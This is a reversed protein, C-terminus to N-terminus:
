VVARPEGPRPSTERAVFDTQRSLKSILFHLGAYLVCGWIAFTGLGGVLQNDILFMSICIVLMAYLPLWREPLRITAAHVLTAGYGFLAVALPGLAGFDYYLYTIETGFFGGLMGNADPSYSLDNGSLAGVVRWPIFFHMRGWGRELEGINQFNAYYVLLSHTLHQEFHVWAKLVEALAGTGDGEIILSVIWPPAKAFDAMGSAQYLDYVDLNASQVGRLEFVIQFVVILALGSVALGIWSGVLRRLSGTSKALFFVMVASHLMVSRSGQLLAEIMPYAALACAFAFTLPRRHQGASLWLLALAIFGYCFGPGGLYGFFSTTGELTESSEILTEEITFNRLVFRDYARAAISFLGIVLTVNIYRDLSQEFPRPELPLGHLNAARSVYCGAFFAGICVLAYASGLWSVIDFAYELPSTLFVLVYLIIGAVMIRAPSWRELFAVDVVPDRPHNNM